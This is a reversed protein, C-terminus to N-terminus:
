FLLVLVLMPNLYGSPLSIVADLKHDEVLIRRIEKNAKSSKFVVGDPVIVAARGGPKLLKLFLALFTIRHKKTNM